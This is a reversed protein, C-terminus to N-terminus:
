KNVNTYRLDQLDIEQLNVSTESPCPYDLTCTYEMVTGRCFQGIVLKPINMLIENSLIPQM